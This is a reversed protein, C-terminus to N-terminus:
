SSLLDALGWFQEVGYAGPQKWKDSSFSFQATFTGCEKRIGDMAAKQESVGPIAAGNTNGETPWGSEGVFVVDSQPCIKRLIAVEEAVFSGAQEATVGGNFFAQINSSAFDVVECFTSGYQQWENLPESITFKGDYGAAKITSKAATVFGALDEASIYGDIVAENDLVIFEIDKWGNATGWTVIDSVQSTATSVGGAKIFVGLIVKMGLEIAQSAVTELQDCDTSYLRVAHFGNDKIKQLDSKVQGASLCNSDEPSYGTYTIAYNPVQGLSSGGPASGTNSPAPASSASTSTSTTTAPAPPPVATTTQVPAPPASSSPPLGTAAPCTYTFSTETVVVTQEPQTYTGTTITSPTPWVLTTPAPVVTTIPAITYTGPTPCVYTTTEIVSTVTSGSPSTTAYPCVITTSTEVVTTVGGVTHTGSPVPTSTAGCVYTESTVTITTAPLTYTGTSPFVTESPTPLVPTPTTAPTSPTSPPPPPPPASSSAQVTVTAYSTSHITTTTTSTTTPEPSPTPPASFPIMTPSGWYTIVSTTCGCTSAPTELDRRHHFADHGHRRHNDSAMASGMLAAAATLLAGKMTLLGLSYPASRDRNVLTTFFIDHRQAWGEEVNYHKVDQLGSFLGRGAANRRTGQNVPTPRVWHNITPNAMSDYQPTTNTTM